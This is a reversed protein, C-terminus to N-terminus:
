QADEFLANEFYTINTLLIMGSSFYGNPYLNSITELIGCTNQKKLAVADHGFMM